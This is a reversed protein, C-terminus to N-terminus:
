SVKMAIYVACVVLISMPPMQALGYVAIALTALWLPSTAILIRKFRKDAKKQAQYSALQSAERQLKWAALNDREEREIQAQRAKAPAAAAALRHSREYLAQNIQTTNM